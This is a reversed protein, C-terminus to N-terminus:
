EPMPVRPSPSRWPIPAAVESSRTWQSRIDASRQGFCNCRDKAAEGHPSATGTKGLEPQHPTSAEYGAADAAPAAETEHKAGRGAVPGSGAPRVQHDRTLRALNVAANRDRDLVLGCDPNDCHYTRESPPLSPKRRGCGSCTKSSPYWRDAVTLETGYWGTKYALQRAVEALAADSVARNSAREGKGAGPKRSGMGAVNLDELVLHDCGQALLTATKHITDRRVNAARAHTRGIRQKTRQQRNSGRQQRARTRQLRRLRAQANGLSRPAPVRLVEDGDATAAITLDRAGVDVGVPEDAPALRRAHSPRAAKGLTREVEVTFSVHWRGSADQKITAAMMRATRAEMRRALKRTSEHTRVRGIRPLTVHKRDPEVRITGTTFRVGMRHRRKRLRPFRGRGKRWNDLARALGDLGSSYAEKSNVPWWPGGSETGVASENKHANWHRRLAPLSWGDLVTPEGAHHRDIDAKVETLLRNFAFRAAGEHSALARQQRATPDLAFRYAQVVTMSM